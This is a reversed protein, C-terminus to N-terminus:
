EYKVWLDCGALQEAGTRETKLLMCGWKGDDMVVSHACMRCTQKPQEGNWCIGKADCFKCRWDGEKEAIRLPIMSDNVLQELKSEIERIALDEKKIRETYYAEDDKCIVVYLADSLGTLWLGMQIQYYHQPKAVKCGKSTIEKFGKVNSSKIELTHPTKEAGPVGKIVGDLKAVAHGRAATYTWQKGDEDFPWVEFGANKLDDLVREEQLHGTKFLRLLRGSFVGEYAGRWDYWISRVCEDGIGSAGIRTLYGSGENQKEYYAYIRESVASVDKPITAM